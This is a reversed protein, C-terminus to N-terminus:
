TGFSKHMDRYDLLVLMIVTSLHVAGFNLRLILNRPCGIRRQLGGDAYHKIKPKTGHWIFRKRLHELQKIFDKTFNAM